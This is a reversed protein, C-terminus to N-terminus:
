WEEKGLVIGWDIVPHRNTTTIKEVLEVLDGDSKENKNKM